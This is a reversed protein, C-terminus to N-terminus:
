RISRCIDCQGIQPVQMNQYGQKTPSMEASRPSRGNASNYPDGGVGGERIPQFGMQSPSFRKRSSDAAGGAQNDIVRPQVINGSAVAGGGRPSGSIDRQSPSARGMPQDSVPSSGLLPINHRHGTPSAALQLANPIGVGPTRQTVCLAAFHLVCPLCDPLHDSFLNIEVNIISEHSCSERKVGVTM